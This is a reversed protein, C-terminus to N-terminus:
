LLGVRKCKKVTKITVRKQKKNNREALEWIKGQGDYPSSNGGAYDNSGLLINLM